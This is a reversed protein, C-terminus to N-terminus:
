LGTAHARAASVCPPQVGSYLLRVILSGTMRVVDHEALYLLSSLGEVDLMFKFSGDM